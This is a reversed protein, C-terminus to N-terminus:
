LLTTCKDCLVLKALIWKRHVEHLTITDLGAKRLAHHHDLRVKLATAQM